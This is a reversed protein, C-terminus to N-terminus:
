RLVMNKVGAAWDISADKIEPGREPTPLPKRGALNKILVRHDPRGVVCLKGILDAACARTSVGGSSRGICAPNRLFQGANLEPLTGSRVFACPM